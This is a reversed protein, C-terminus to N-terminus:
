PHKKSQILWTAVSENILTHIAQTHGSNKYNQNINAKPKVENKLLHPDLPLKDLIDLQKINMSKVSQEVLVQSALYGWVAWQKTLPHHIETIFKPIRLKKVTAIHVQPYLTGTEGSLTRYHQHISDSNLYALLAYLTTINLNKLIIQHVSNLTFLGIPDLSVCLTDATQRYILKPAQFIWPSRLSTGSRKEVTSVLHHRYDIWNSHITLQFPQIWHGEACLKWHPDVQHSALRKDRSKRTGPNIGDKVHAIDELAITSSLPPYAHWIKQSTIVQWSCHPRQLIQQYSEYITHSEKNDKTANILYVTNNISCHSDASTYHNSLHIVSAGVIAKEFQDSHYHIVGKLYKYDSLVHRLRQYAINTLISAPLLLYIEGGTLQISRTIFFLFANIHGSIVQHGQIHVLERMQLSRFYQQISRDKIANKGYFSLYPPNSVIFDFGLSTQSHATPFQSNPQFVEPFLDEITIQNVHQYTTHPDSFQDILHLVQNVSKSHTTRFHQITTSSNLTLELQIKHAYEHRVIQYKLLSDQYYKDIGITSDHTYLSDAVQLNLSLLALPLDKIATWLWLTFQAIHVARRDIDVGYLQLLSIQLRSYAHLSQNNEIRKQWLMNATNILFSACGMAPDLYRYMHNSPPSQLHQQEVHHIIHKSLKAPTYHAGLLKRQESKQIILSSQPYVLLYGEENQKLIPLYKLLRKPQTKLNNPLICDKYLYNKKHHKSITKKLYKLRYKSSTSTLHNLYLDPQSSTLLEIDRISINQIQDLAKHITAPARKTSRKLFKYQENKPKKLLAKLLSLPIYYNVKSSSKLALMMTKTTTATYTLINEYLMGLVFLTDENHHAYEVYDYSAKILRYLLIPNIYEGHPLDASYDKECYSFFLPTKISLQDEHLQQTFDYLTTTIYAWIPLKDIKSRPLTSKHVWSTLEQHAQSKLISSSLLGYKLACWYGVVQLTFHSSYQYLAQPSTFHSHNHTYHLPYQDSHYPSIQSPLKLLSTNPSSKTSLCQNVKYLAETYRHCHTIVIEGLRCLKITNKKPTM